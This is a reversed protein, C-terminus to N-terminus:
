LALGTSTCLYCSVSPRRGPRTTGPRRTSVVKAPTKRGRKTGGPRDASSTSVTVFFVFLGPYVCAVETQTLTLRQERDVLSVNSLRHQSQYLPRQPSKM